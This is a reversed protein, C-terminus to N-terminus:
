LLVIDGFCYDGLLCLQHPSVGTTDEPINEFSQLIKVFLAEDVSIDLTHATSGLTYQTSTSPHVHSCTKM